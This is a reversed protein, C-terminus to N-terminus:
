IQWRKPMPGKGSETAWRAGSRGRVAGNPGMELHEQCRALLPHPARWVLSIHNDDNCSSISSRPDCVGTGLVLHLLPTRMKLGSTKGLVAHRPFSRMFSPAIVLPMLSLRSSARATM